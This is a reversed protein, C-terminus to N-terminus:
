DGSKAAAAAIETDRKEKFIFAFVVTVAAALVAPVLWITRWHHESDSVTNAVYIMNALNSGIVVGVGLTILALFSQARGRTEHPFKKDTYIQGAVFFFDYCVGHLLIGIVLMSMVPGAATVGYAFLVYRLAWAAMGVVLVWKIGLRIFFFPLLLMFAIESMQGLSQFATSAEVGSEVLFTNTYAYYFSLPIVILLSAVIFLWYARDKMALMADLGTVEMLNTEKHKSRPPADPLTFSYLGLAISAGASLLIPMNTAEAAFYAVVLGAVIWGITGLVRIAPFQKETSTMANFAVANSLPLTPMYCLMYLVVSWFFLGEAQEGKVTSLFFLVCGGIIHLVGMLKQASFFRDAIAGIFLPTIIAAYGQSAYTAGIIGDYGQANIYTGLPVWWAGWIFYQAFMMVSLRLRIDLKM